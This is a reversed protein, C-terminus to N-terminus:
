RPGHSISTACRTHLLNEAVVEQPQITHLETRLRCGLEHLLGLDTDDIPVMTHRGELARKTLLVHEKHSEVTVEIIRGLFALQWSHTIVNCSNSVVPLLRQQLRLVSTILCNHLYYYSAQLSCSCCYLRSLHCNSRARKHASTVNTEQLLFYPKQYNLSTERKLSNYNCWRVNLSM